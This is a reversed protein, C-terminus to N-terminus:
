VIHGSSMLTFIAYVAYVLCHRTGVIVDYTDQALYSTLIAYHLSHPGAPAAQAGPLTEHWFIVDCNSLAPIHVLLLQRRV